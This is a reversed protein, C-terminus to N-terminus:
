STHRPGRVRVRVHAGGGGCRDSHSACVLRPNPRPIPIPDSHTHSTVWSYSSSPENKKSTCLTRNVFLNRTNLRPIILERPSAFFCIYKAYVAYEDVRKMRKYETVQKNSQTIYQFTNRDIMSEWRLFSFHPPTPATAYDLSVVIVPIEQHPPHDM